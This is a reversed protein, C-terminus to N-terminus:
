FMSLEFIDLLECFLIAACSGDYGCIFANKVVEPGFVVKLPQNRQM